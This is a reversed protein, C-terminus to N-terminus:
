EVEDAFSMIWCIRFYWTTKLFCVQESTQSLDLYHLIGGLKEHMQVRKNKSQLSDDIGNIAMACFYLVSTIIWRENFIFGKM